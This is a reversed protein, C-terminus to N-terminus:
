WPRYRTFVLILPKRKDVFPACGHRHIRAERIEDLAYAAPIRLGGRIEDLLVLRDDPHLHPGSEAIRAQPTQEIGHVNALGDQAAEQDAGRPSLVIQLVWAM